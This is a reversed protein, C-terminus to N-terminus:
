PTRDRKRQYVPRPHIVYCDALCKVRALCERAFMRVAVPGGVDPSAFGVVDMGMHRGIFLAREVHFRQSVVVPDHCGFLHLCIWLSDWTRYGREDRLLAEEPVGHARLAMAMAEAETVVAPRKDAGSLLLRRVGGGQYLRAASM